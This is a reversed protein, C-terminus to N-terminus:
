TTLHVVRGDSGFRSLSCPFWWPSGKTKNHKRSLLVPDILISKPRIRVVEPNNELFLYYM